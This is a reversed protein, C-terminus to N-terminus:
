FRVKKAKGNVRRIYIGSEPNEIKMGSLTYYEEEGTAVTIMLDRISSQLQFKAKGIAEPYAESYFELVKDSSSIVVPTGPEYKQWEGEARQQSPATGDVVRFMVDTPLDTEETMFDLKVPYEAFINYKITRAAHDIYKADQCAIQPLKKGNGYITDRVEVGRRTDNGKYCASVVYPFEEALGEIRLKGDEVAISQSEYFDNPILSYEVDESAAINACKALFSDGEWSYYPGYDFEMTTAERSDDRYTVEIYKCQMNGSMIFTVPIDSEGFWTVLHEGDNGRNFSLGEDTIASGINVKEVPPMYSIGYAEKFDDIFFIKEIVTGLPCVSFTKGRAAIFRNPTFESGYAYPDLYSIGEIEFADPIVIEDSNFIRTDGGLLYANEDTVVYITHSEANASLPLLIGSIAIASSLLQKLSSWNKTKM